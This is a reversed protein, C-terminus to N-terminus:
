SCGRKTTGDWSSWANEGDKTGSANNHDPLLAMRVGFKVSQQICEEAVTNRQMRRHSRLLWITVLLAALVASETSRVVSQRSAKRM